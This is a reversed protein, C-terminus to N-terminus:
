QETAVGSIQMSGVLVSTSLGLQRWLCPGCHTDPLRRSGVIAARCAVSSQLIITRCHLTIAEVGSKYAVSAVPGHSGAERVSLAGRWAASERGTLRACQLV